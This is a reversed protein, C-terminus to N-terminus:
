KNGGDIFLGNPLRGVIGHRLPNIYEGHNHFGGKSGLVKM